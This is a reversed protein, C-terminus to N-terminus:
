KAHYSRRFDNPTRGTYKKFCDIFHSISNFGCDLAINIIKMDTSILLESAKAVRIRIIYEIPTAGYTKKFVSSFNSVSMNVLSALENLSIKSNYNSDIFSFVPELRLSNNFRGPLGENEEMDIYRLLLTSLKLIHSKIMLKYGNNKAKFEKEIELLIEVIPKYYRSNIDLKNGFRSGFEWFPTMYDMEFPYCSANWLLDPEFLLVLMIVNKDNYALHVDKSNIVYVDGKEFPYDRGGVLYRGTGQKLYCIEICSHWHLVTSEKSIGITEIVFVPFNKEIRIAIKKAPPISNSVTM